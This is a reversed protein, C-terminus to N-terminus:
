NREIDTELLKKKELMFRLLVGIVSSLPLAILMGLFGMLHWGSLVAFIMWVPHIGIRNSVLHPTLIYGELFIGLSFVSYTKIFISLEPNELLVM